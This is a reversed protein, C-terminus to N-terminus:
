NRYNGCICAQLDTAVKYGDEELEVKLETSKSLLVTLITLTRIAQPITM